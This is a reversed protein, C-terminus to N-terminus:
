VEGRERGGKRRERDSAVNSSRCVEPAGLGSHLSPMRTCTGPTVIPSKQLGLLRLFSPQPSRTRALGCQGESRVTLSQLQRISRLVLLIHLDNEQLTFSLGADTPKPLAAPIWLYSYLPSQRHTQPKLSYTRFVALSVKMKVLLTNPTRYNVWSIFLTEM